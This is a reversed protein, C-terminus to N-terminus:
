NTAKGLVMSPFNSWPSSNNTKDLKM